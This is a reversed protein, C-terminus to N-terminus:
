KDPDIALKRDLAIGPMPEKKRTEEKTFHKDQEEEKTTSFKVKTFYKTEQFAEATATATPDSSLSPKTTSENITPNNENHSSSTRATPASLKSSKISPL